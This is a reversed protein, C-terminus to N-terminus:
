ALPQFKHVNILPVWAEDGDAFQIFGEKGNKMAFLGTFAYNRDDTWYTIIQDGLKPIGGLPVINKKAITLTDNDHFKM